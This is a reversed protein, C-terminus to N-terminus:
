NGPITTTAVNPIPNGSLDLLVTDGNFGMMNDWGALGPLAQNSGYAALGCPGPIGEDSQANNTLYVFFNVVTPAAVDLGILDRPIAIEIGTDATLPDDGTQAPTEGDPTFWGGVGATNSMDIAIEVGSAGTLLGNGGDVVGIGLVTVSLDSLDTLDCAMVLQSDSQGPFKGVSITLAYDPGIPSNPDSITAGNYYRLIRPYEGRCAVGVGPDTALPHSGAGAISDIFVTLANNDDLNGPIGIYVNDSDSDVFLQNLENDDNGFNTNTDQVAISAVGWTAFDIALGDITQTAGMALSALALTTCTVFLTKM